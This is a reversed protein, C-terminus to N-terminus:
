NSLLIKSDSLIGCIFCYAGGALTGVTVPSKDITGIKTNLIAPVWDAVESFFLEVKVLFNKLM